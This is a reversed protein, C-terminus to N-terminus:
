PSVTSVPAKVSKYWTLRKKAYGKFVHSDDDVVDMVVPDAKGVHVRLIRGIVQEVNARPTGLICTDLSPIDTGESMYQYTCILFPRAVAERRKQETMGGVYQAVDQSPIGMGPMMAELFNIHERQDVFLATKRGKRYSRRCLDLLLHNRMPDAILHRRIHADRGPAHPVKSGDKRKPCRWSSLVRVVTPVLQLQTVEVRVPGIHAQFAAELGDSRKPTASVGWRLRANSWAAANLFEEAGLRHVEDFVILGPWDAVWAPYRNPKSVSHLLAVVVKKGAVDFVDGQLRGVEGPSLGLIKVLDERWRDVLDEKPVVVMTTRGVAAIVPCACATKGFGTPARAVFSNGALLLESCESVFREQESSRPVFKLKDFSAPQGGSTKDVLGPPCLGRPLYTTKGRVVDLRVGRDFRGPVFFRGPPFSADPYAAMSAVWAPREGVFM